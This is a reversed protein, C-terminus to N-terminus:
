SDVAKHVPTAGGIKGIKSYYKSDGRRKSKGKVSGGKRGAERMAAKSAEESGHKKIMTQWAKNGTAKNGVPRAVM